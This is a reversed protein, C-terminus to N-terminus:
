RLKSTGRSGGTLNTALQRKSGDGCGLATRASYPLGGVPPRRQTPTPYPIVRKTEVTERLWPTAAGLTCVPQPQGGQVDPLTDQGGTDGRPKLTGWLGRLGWCGGACGEAEGNQGTGSGPMEPLAQTGSGARQRVGLM